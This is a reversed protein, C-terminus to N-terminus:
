SGGSAAQGILVWGSKQQQWVSMRHVPAAMLAQGNRTGTMSIDYTVVVTDGNLEVRLDGISYDKLDLQKLQALWGTADMKGEPGSGAFNSAMAREIEPWNKDKINKWFVQELGEGGTAGAFNKAPKDKYVTCGVTFALLVFLWGWRAGMRM